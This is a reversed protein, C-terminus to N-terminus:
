LASPFSLYEDTSTGEVWLGEGPKLQNVVPEDGVDLWGYLEKTGEEEGPIDYWFYMSGEVLVGRGDDQQSIITGECVGDEYGDAAIFKGDSDDDNFNIAVPTPNVVFTSGFKLFVQVPAGSAVQGSSTVYEDESTGEMWWAGGPQVTQADRLLPEDGTDLWGYLEKTGEEEGPIDYWFYMSGETLVGRGDVQQSIITGECVGDEYGNPIIDMLDVRDGTLPVFQSGIATSGPKLNNQAYGVVQSEVAFGAM